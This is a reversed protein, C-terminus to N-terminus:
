LFEIPRLREMLRPVMSELPASDPWYRAWETLSDRLADTIYGTWGLCSSSVSPHRVLQNRLAANFYGDTIVLKPSETHLRALGMLLSHALPNADLERLAKTLGEKLGSANEAFLWCEFLVPALEPPPFAFLADKIGFQMNLTRTSTGVRVAIEPLTTRGEGLLAAEVAVFRSRLRLGLQRREIHCIPESSLFGRLVRDESRFVPNDTNHIQRSFVAASLSRGLQMEGAGKHVTSSSTIEGILGHDELSVPAWSQQTDLDAM